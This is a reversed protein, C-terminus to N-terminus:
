VAKLAAAIAETSHGALDKALEARIRAQTEKHFHRRLEGLTKPAAIVVLDAVKGALVQKNLWEATGAAFADENQTQDDPNAAKSIRRMGSSMNEVDIAPTKMATLKLDSATGTNRFLVLKEGDAVAVVAGKKLNM